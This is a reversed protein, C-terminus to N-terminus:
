RGSARAPGAVPRREALRRRTTLLLALLRAPPGAAELVRRSVMRHEATGAEKESLFMAVMAGLIVAHREGDDLARFRRSTTSVLTRLRREFTERDDYYRLYSHHARAADWKRDVLHDGLLGLASFSPFYAACTDSAQAATAVPKAGLVILAHVALPSSAAACLEPWPTAPYSAHAHAWARLRREVCRRPGHNIKQVEGGYRALRRAHPGAAAWSPLRACGDKCVRVLADLYGLDDGDYESTRSPREPSLADVLANLVSAGCRGGERESLADVCSWLLVYAILLPVLERHAAPELAAFLAAGEASMDADFPRLVAYRLRPDPIAHARQRWRALERRAQPRITTLRPLRHCSPGGRRAQLLPHDFPADEASPQV